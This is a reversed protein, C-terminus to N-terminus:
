ESSSTMPGDCPPIPASDLLILAGRIEEINASTICLITVFCIFARITSVARLVPHPLM